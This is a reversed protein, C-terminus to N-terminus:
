AAAEGETIAVEDALHEAAARSMGQLATLVERGTKRRGEEEFGELHALRVRSHM